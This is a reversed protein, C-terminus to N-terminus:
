YRHLMGGFFYCRLGGRDEAAARRGDDKKGKICVDREKEREREKVSLSGVLDLLSSSLSANHDTEKNDFRIGLLLQLKNHISDILIFGLLM